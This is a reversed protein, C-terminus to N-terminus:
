SSLSKVDKSFPLNWSIFEYNELSISSILFSFALSEFSCERLFCLNYCYSVSFVEWSLGKDYTKWLTSSSSVIILREWLSSLTSSINSLRVVYLDWTEFNVLLIWLKVIEFLSVSAWWFPIMLSFSYCRFYGCACISVFLSSISKKTLVRSLRSLNNCSANLKM